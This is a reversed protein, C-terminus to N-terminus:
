EPESKSKGAPGKTATGFLYGAIAGLVGVAATLQEDVRAIMVVLVTAYIVLVLGAANVMTAANRNGIATLFWLVIVLSLVAAVIIALIFIRRSLEVAIYADHYLKADDAAPAAASAPTVSSRIEKLVDAASDSTQAAESLAAPLAAGLMMVVVAIATRM